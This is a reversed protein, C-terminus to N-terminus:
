LPCCVDVLSTKPSSGSASNQFANRAVIEAQDAIEFVRDVAAFPFEKRRLVADEVVAFLCEFHFDARQGGPRM